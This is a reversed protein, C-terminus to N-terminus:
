QVKCTSEGKLINAFQEARAYIHWNKIVDERAKHGIEKCKSPDNILLDIYQMWEDIENALYGTEGHTMAMEYEKLWPSAICPLSAAGAITYKLCSKSALWTPQDTAELFYNLDGPEGPALILNSMKYMGYYEYLPVREFYVKEIGRWKNIASRLLAVQSSLCIIRCDKYKEPTQSMRECIRNLMMTGIRGESTFLINFKNPNIVANAPPVADFIPIDVHTKLLHIPRKYEAKILYDVLAQTAVITEDCNMLIKLPAFNNAHFFADDLYYIVPIEMSRFYNIHVDVNVLINPNTPVKTGCRLYLIAEPLYEILSRPNEENGIVLSVLQHKLYPSMEGVVKEAVCNYQPTVVGVVYYGEPIGTYVLPKIPEM